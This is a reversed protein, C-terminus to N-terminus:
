RKAEAMAQKLDLGRNVEESNHSRYEGDLENMKVRPLAMRDKAKMNQRLEERWAENRLEM